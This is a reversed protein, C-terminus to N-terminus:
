NGNIQCVILHQAGKKDFGELGYMDKPDMHMARSIAGAYAVIKTNYLPNGRTLEIHEGKEDTIVNNSSYFKL